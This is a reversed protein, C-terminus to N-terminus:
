WRRRSFVGDGRLNTGMIVDFNEPVLDLFDGRLVSAMGANNVLCDIGGFEALVADVTAQHGSLDSIDAKLFIARAGLAELNKLVGSVQDADGIGTIAIDFGDKALATAIGLGIGRRGGTVIAVPRKHESMGGSGECRYQGAVRLAQAAVTLAPNVAASTPLCSADVVFLNQHDFARCLPDLPATAPDNGMRVTGCQHSPTRKDFPQSLVIPYGAAKFHARMKVELASLAEMNSRRWQMIIGKGDVM